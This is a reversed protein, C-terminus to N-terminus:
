ATKRTPIVARRNLDEIRCMGQDALRKVIRDLPALAIIGGQPMRVRSTERGGGSVKRRTRKQDNTRSIHRKLRAGLFSAGKEAKTISTKEMNLYLKLNEELFNKIENRLNEALARSGTVGILFDDAYRVYYIRYGTGPKVSPLKAREKELSRIERLREKEEEESLNKSYRYSKLFYARLNSIKTHIKKYDPNPVTTPGSTKSEDVKVQMFKDLEHLYINSLIASITGGQPIGKEGYEEEKSIPNIYRAKVAKWYLDIFEKSNIEKKM